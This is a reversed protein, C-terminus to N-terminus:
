AAAFNCLTVGETMYEAVTTTDIRASSHVPNGHRSHLAFPPSETAWAPPRIEQFLSTPLIALVLLPLLLSYLAFAISLPVLAPHM